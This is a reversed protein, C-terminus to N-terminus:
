SPHKDSDPDMNHTTIEDIVIDIIHDRQQTTTNPTPPLELRIHRAILDKNPSSTKTRQDRYITWGLSAISVILSGLTIPDFYQTPHQQTNRSHLATYVETLLTPGYQPTLHQAVAHATQEIVNDTAPSDNTM